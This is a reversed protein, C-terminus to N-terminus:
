YYFNNLISVRKDELKKLLDTEVFLRNDRDHFRLILVDYHQDELFEKKPRWHITNSVNFFLAQNNKIDYKERDLYIPWIEKNNIPLSFSMYHTEDIRDVHPKLEPSYNGTKPTYRQYKLDISNSHVDFNLIKKIQESVYDRTTKIEEKKFSYTFCGLKENKEFDSYMEKKNNINHNIQGDIFETIHNIHEETFFNDVLLPKFSLIDIANM